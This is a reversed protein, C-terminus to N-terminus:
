RFDYDYHFKNNYSADKKNIVKRQRKLSKDVDKLKDSLLEPDVYESDKGKECVKVESHILILESLADNRIEACKNDYPDMHIGVDAVHDPYVAFVEKLKKCADVVKEDDLDARIESIKLKIDDIRKSMEEKTKKEKMTEASASFSLALLLSASILSKM